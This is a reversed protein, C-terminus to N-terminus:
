RSRKRPSQRRSIESEMRLSLFGREMLQKVYRVVAMECEQTDLGLHSSMRAVITQLNTHGDIQQWFFSGAQDLNARQARVLGIRRAIKAGWTAPESLERRLQVWGQPDTRAAVLRGPVPVAELPHRTRTVQGSARGSRVPNERTSSM